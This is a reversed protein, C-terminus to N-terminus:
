AGLPMTDSAQAGHALKSLVAERELQLLCKLEAATFLPHVEANTAVFEVVGCGHKADAASRMGTLLALCAEVKLCRFLLEPVCCQQCVLHALEPCPTTGSQDVWASDLTGLQLDREKIVRSMLSALVNAARPVEAPAQNRYRLSLHIAGPTPQDPQVVVQLEPGEAGLKRAWEWVYNRVAECDVPAHGMTGGDGLLTAELVLLTGPAVQMPVSAEWAEAGSLWRLVGRQRGQPVGGEESGQEHMHLLEEACGLFNEAAQRLQQMRGTSHSTVPLLQLQRLSQAADCLLPDAPLPRGIEAFLSTWSDRWDRYLKDAMFYAQWGMLEKTAAEDKLEKVETVLGVARELEAVAPLPDGALMRTPPERGEDLCALAFDRCRLHCEQQLVGQLYSLKDGAVALTTDDVFNEGGRLSYEPRVRRRLEVVEEWLGRCALSLWELDLSALRRWSPDGAAVHRGHAVVRSLMHSLTGETYAPAVGPSEFFPLVEIADRLCSRKLLDRQEPPWHSSEASLGCLFEFFVKERRPPSLFRCYLPVQNYRKVGVLHAVYKHLFDDQKPDDGLLWRLALAMHAAFRLLLPGAAGAQVKVSSELHGVLPDWEERVAQMQLVRHLQGCEARVAEVRSSELDRFIEDAGKRQFEALEPLPWAGQLAVAVAQGKCGTADRLSHDTDPARWTAPVPARSLVDDVRLDMAAKFRAWCAAEWTDCVSLVRPLNGCMSAYLAVEWESASSDGALMESTKFCTWKWLSRQRLWGGECHAGYQEMQKGEDAALAEAEVEEGYPSPGLEGCGKLSAGRWEQGCKAAFQMARELQGSQVLQWMAKLFHTEDGQDDAQLPLELRTPADPDFENVLESMSDDKSHGHANWTRPWLACNESFLNEVGEEHREKLRERALEELWATVAAMRRISPDTVIAKVVTQELTRLMADPNYQHEFDDRSLHHLLLWTASESRLMEAQKDLLYRRPQTDVAHARPGSLQRSQDICAKYLDHLWGRLDAVTLVPEQDDVRGVLQKLHGFFTEEEPLPDLVAREDLSGQISADAWPDTGYPSAGMPGPSAGFPPPPTLDWRKGPTPGATHLPFYGGPTHLLPSMPIDPRRRRDPRPLFPHGPSYVQGIGGQM